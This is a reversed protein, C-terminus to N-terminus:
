ERPGEDRGNQCAESQRLWLFSKLGAIIRDLGQELTSRPCATNIRVYGDEGYMTGPNIWVKYKERLRKCIEESGKGLAKVNLWVLYTAELPSLICCPLEERLRQSLFTYNDWIYERLCDLWEEGRPSYAARLAAPGFVNLDCHEWVNIVRDIRQRLQPNECILASVQLGAVNWSKSCSILSVCSPNVLAYPTYLSGVPTLEGHIEDSIVSLSYRRCISDMRELEEKRWLRGTPNHPNCLLFVKAEKAKREFDEWDVSVSGDAGYLLQCALPKCLTNRISSFFCNYAPNFFLVGDGENTLAKIVVSAGPVLGDIPIIADSSIKWSYKHSFWWEIADRFGQGPFGYGFVGESLKSELAQQICPAAKFDMDAVWMPIEGEAANDWKVSGTGRRNVPTDFWSLQEKTM